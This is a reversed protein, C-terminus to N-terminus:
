RDEAHIITCLRPTPTLPVLVAVHHGVALTEANDAMRRSRRACVTRGHIAIVSGGDRTRVAQDEFVVRAVGQADLEAVVGEVRFDGAERYGTPPTTGRADYVSM